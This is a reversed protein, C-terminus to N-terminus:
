QKRKPVDARVAGFAQGSLEPYLKYFRERARARNEERFFYDTRASGLPLVREEPIGFAEAYIPAVARSTCVAYTLKRNSKEENRRVEAPQEIAMGFKKFAGEGHWLQTIVAEKKFNCGSMPLFNDNLFVYKSTALLRSKVFFFSLVRPINKLRIELDQRTILVFEFGGDKKMQEYVAGLSDNFNENHMSVFAARNEKIGFLAASINFLVAYIKYILKKM